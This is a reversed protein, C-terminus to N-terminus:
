KNASIRRIWWASTWHGPVPALVSQAPDRSKPEEKLARDYESAQFMAKERRELSAIAKEYFGIIRQKSEESLSPTQKVAEIREKLADITLPLLSIEGSAPQQDAGPARTPAFTWSIALSLTLVLSFVFVSYLPRITSHSKGRRYFRM